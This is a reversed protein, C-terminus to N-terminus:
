ADPAVEATDPEADQAAPAPKSKPEEKGNADQLERARELIRLMVQAHNM